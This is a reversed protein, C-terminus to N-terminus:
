LLFELQYNGTQNDGSELVEIHYFGTTEPTLELDAVATTGDLKNGQADYINFIGTFLNQTELETLGFQYTQGAQLEATFWDNDGLTEIAGDTTSNPTIVTGLSAINHHDDGDGPPTNPEFQSIGFQDFELEYLGSETLHSWVRLHYIGSENAQFGFSDNDAHIGGLKEGYPDFLDLIVSTGDFEGNLAFEYYQNQELEITFWDKDENLAVGETLSAPNILTGTAAFDGHDDNTLVEANALPMQGFQDFSLTYEAINDTNPDISLLYDDTQPVM